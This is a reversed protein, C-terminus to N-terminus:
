QLLTMHINIFFVGLAVGHVGLGTSGCGEHEQYFSPLIPYSNSTLFDLLDKRFRSHLPLKKTEGLLLCTTLHDKNTNVNTNKYTNTNRYSNANTNTLETKSKLRGQCRNGSGRITITQSHRHDFGNNAEIWVWSQSIWNSASIGEGATASASESIISSTWCFTESYIWFVQIIEFLFDVYNGERHEKVVWNLSAPLLGLNYLPGYKTKFQCFRVLSLQFSGKSVLTSTFPYYTCILPFNRFFFPKPNYLYM